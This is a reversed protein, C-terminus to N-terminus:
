EPRRVVITIILECTFSKDSYLVVILPKDVYFDCRGSIIILFFFTTKWMGNTDIQKTPPPPSPTLFYVSDNFYLNSSLFSLPFPIYMNKRGTWMM